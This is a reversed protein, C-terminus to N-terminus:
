EREPGFILELPRLDTRPRMVKFGGGTMVGEFIGQDDMATKAESLDGLLYSGPLFISRPNGTEMWGLIPIQAYLNRRALAKEADSGGLSKQVDIAMDLFPGGTYMFSGTWNGLNLGVSAGAAIIAGSIGGHIMAFEARDKMDGRTMGQVIYDKYQVPWTGFQGFIRGQVSNWGAPHDAYGYRTMAERSLVQGLHNTAGEYDGALIKGEAIQRDLPDFTNIKARRKFESLSIKGKNFDDLHEMVRLRQSHFAVARGWDDASQYWEFGKDFINLFKSVAHPAQPGFLDEASHYSRLKQTGPRIAGAKMAQTFADRKTKTDTVYRLGQLYHKVGTRPAIKLASEVFNRFILAPRFPIVAASTLASLASVVDNALRDPAEKGFLTKMVHSMAGQLKGFSNHPKGILEM